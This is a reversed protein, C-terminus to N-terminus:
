RSRIYSLTSKTLPWDALRPYVTNCTWRLLPNYVSLYVGPLLKVQGGFGVKFRTVSQNLSDPLPEGRLLVEAATRDVGEFNYFRYGQSKAWEIATWHMIEILDAIEM